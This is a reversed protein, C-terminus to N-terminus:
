AGLAQYSKAFIPPPMVAMDGSEFQVLFDGPEAHLSGRGESLVVDMVQDTRWAWVSGNRRRYRGNGGPQTPPEADYSGFFRERAVPWREGELGTLLADGSRYRVAGELTGVEGDATAFEVEVLHPRRLARFAGPQNRVDLKNM